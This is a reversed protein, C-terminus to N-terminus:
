SGMMADPVSLKPKHVVAGPCGERTRGDFLHRVPPTAATGSSDTACRRLSHSGPMALPPAPPRRWWNTPHRPTVGSRGALMGVLVLVVTAVVSSPCRFRKIM